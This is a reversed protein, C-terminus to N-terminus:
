LPLYLPYIHIYIYICKYIYIYIQIYIYIYYGIWCVKNLICHQIPREIHIAYCIECTLHELNYIYIYTLYSIHVNTHGTKTKPCILRQTQPHQKQTIHAKESSNTNEALWQFLFTRISWPINTTTQLGLEFVACTLSKAKPIQRM